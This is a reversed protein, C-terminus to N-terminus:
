DRDLADMALGRRVRDVVRNIDPMHCLTESWRDLPRQWQEWFDEFTLPVDAGDYMGPFSVRPSGPEALVPMASARCGFREKLSRMYAVRRDIAQDDWSELSTIAFFVFARLNDYGAIRALSAEMQRRTFRYGKYRRMKDADFFCPSIILIGAAFCTSVAELLAERPLNYCEYMLTIDASVEARIRNFLTIFYDDKGPSQADFCVHLKRFGLEFARKVTALVADVSRFAVQPRGFHREFSVRSGACYACDLSCGRGINLSFALDEMREKAVAAAEGAVVDLMGPGNAYEGVDFMTEGISFDLASLEEDSAVYRQANTVVRDGDRWCLNPVAALDQEPAPLQWQDLLRRLPEEGDGRIVADVAECAGMLEAPFVSATIGGLVVRCAPFAQKIRRAAWCADYGVLHWHVPIGIVEVRYEQMRRTIVEMAAEHSGHVAANMVRVRHGHLNAHNALAFVGAPLINIYNRDWQEHHFGKPVGIIMARM